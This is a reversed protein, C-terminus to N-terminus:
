TRRLPLYHRNPAPFRFTQKLDPVAAAAPPRGAFRPTWTFYKRFYIRTEEEVHAIAERGAGAGAPREGFELQIIFLLFSANKLNFSIFSHGREGKEANIGLRSRRSGEKRKKNEKIADQRPSLTEAARSDHVPNGSCRAWLM